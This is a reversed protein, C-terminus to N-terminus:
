KNVQLQINEEKREMVKIETKEKVIDQRILGLLSMRLNQYKNEEWFALVKNAKMLMAQGSAPVVKHDLLPLWIVVTIWSALLGVASFAAIQHLGPFPALCLTLYGIVTTATGLTIGVLVRKLREQPTGSLPAFVESCYQLSYDVSVGILSIGFLLAGVHLEGFILLSASLATVIGVGIVLLSLLLPRIARFMIVILFVTGLTSLAGIQMEASAWQKRPFNTLLVGSAHPELLKRLVLFNAEYFADM